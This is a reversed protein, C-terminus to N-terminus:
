GKWRALAATQLLQLLIKRRNRRSASFSVSGEHAGNTLLTVTLDTNPPFLFASTMLTCGVQHIPEGRFDSKPRQCDSTQNHLETSTFNIQVRICVEKGQDCMWRPCQAVISTPGDSRVVQGNRPFFIAINHMPQLPSARLYKAVSPHVEFANPDFGHACGQDSDTFNCVSPPRITRLPTSGDPSELGESSFRQHAEKAKSAEPYAM